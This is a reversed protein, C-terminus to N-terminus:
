PHLRGRAIALLKLKRGLSRQQKKTLPAFEVLAHAPNAPADSTTAVPDAWASLGAAEVEAVSLGWAGASAQGFGGPRAATFLQFAAAPTTISGRDVSMCDDDVDRWPYFSQSSPEGDDLWAPSV